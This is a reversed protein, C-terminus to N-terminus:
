EDQRRCCKAVFTPLFTLRQLERVGLAAQLKPMAGPDVLGSQPSCSAAVLIVHPIDRKAALRAQSESWRQWVCLPVSLSVTQLGHSQSHHIHPYQQFSLSASWVPGLHLDLSLSVPHTSMHRHSKPCLRVSAETDCSPRQVVALLYHYASKKGRQEQWLHLKAACAELIVYVWDSCLVLVAGAINDCLVCEFVECLMSPFMLGQRIDLCRSWTNKCTQLRKSHRRISESTKLTAAAVLVALEFAHIRCLALKTDLVVLFAKCLRAAHIRLSCM